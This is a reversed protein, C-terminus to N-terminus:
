SPGGLGITSGARGWGEEEEESEVVPLGSGVRGVQEGGVTFTDGREGIWKLSGDKSQIWRNGARGGEGNHESFWRWYSPFLSFVCWM